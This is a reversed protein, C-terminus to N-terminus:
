RLGEKGRRGTHYVLDFFVKHLLVETNGDALGPLFYGSYLKEIDMPDIPQRPQSVDLGDKKNKKMQGKFVKNANQFIKDEMLNILRNNPPSTLYRNLGSRLNIM